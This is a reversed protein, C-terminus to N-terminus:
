GHCTKRGVLDPKPKANANVAHCSKRGYTDPNGAMPTLNKQKANVAFAPNGAMPTLIEQWGHCTKGAFIM